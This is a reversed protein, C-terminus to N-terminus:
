EKAKSLLEKEGNLVISTIASDQLLSSISFSREARVLARCRDNLTTHLLYINAQGVSDSKTQVLLFEHPRVCGGGYQVKVQLSDEVIGSSIFTYKLMKQDIENVLPVQMVKKKGACSVLIVGALM